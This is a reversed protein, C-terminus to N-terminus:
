LDGRESVAADKRIRLASQGFVCGSSWQRCIAQDSRRRRRSQYRYPFRRLQRDPLKANRSLQEPFGAGPSRTSVPATPRTRCRAARRLALRSSNRWIASLWRARPVPPKKRSTRWNTFIPPASPFNRCRRIGNRRAMRSSHRRTPASGTASRSRNAVPRRAPAQPTAKNLYRRCIASFLKRGWNPRRWRPSSVRRAAAGAGLRRVRRCEAILRLAGFDECASQARVEPVGAGMSLPPALWRSHRAKLRSGQRHESQPLLSTRSLAFNKNEFM